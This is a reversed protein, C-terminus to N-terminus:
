IVYDPLCNYWHVYVEDNLVIGQAFVPISMGLLVAAYLSKRLYM